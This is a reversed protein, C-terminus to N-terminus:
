AMLGRQALVRLRRSRSVYPRPQVAAFTIRLGNAVRGSDWFGGTRNAWGGGSWTGLPDSLPKYYRFRSATSATWGRFARLRPDSGACRSCPKRSSREGAGSRQPIAGNSCRKPSVISPFGRFAASDAEITAVTTPSPRRSSAARLEGLTGGGCSRPSASWCAGPQRTRGGSGPPTLRGAAESPRRRQVGERLVAPRSAVLRDVGMAGRHVVGGAGEAGAPRKRKGM